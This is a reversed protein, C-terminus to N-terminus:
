TGEGKERVATISSIYLLNGEYSMYRETVTQPTMESKHFHAFVVM